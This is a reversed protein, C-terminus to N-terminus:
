SRDKQKIPLTVSVKTGKGLESDVTLHGHHENIIHNVVMLGLGTGDKKTTYFPQTLRPIDVQKIGSGNDEVTVVITSNHGRKGFIRIMGGEPMAELANKLLNIFVQKLHKEDCKILPLSEELMTDITVGQAEAQYEMISITYSIIEQLNALQMQVTKPKSIYMLDNVIINIRDIEQIMIPFYDRNEPPREQQLQVFGKLSALPNRIEHAISAAMQGVVALKEQQRLDNHVKTLTSIYSFFRTLLIYSIVVIVAISVAPIIVDSNHILIGIIFYKGILGFSIVWFYRKNVFIPAFILFLVEVINGSAFQKSTGAYRLINDVIDTSVFVIFLIYKVAYPNRKKYYYIAIPLLSILLIYLWIGLGEDFYKRDGYSTYKPIIYYWVLSYTFYFFYFLWLFLKIAKKEEFILKPCQEDAEM